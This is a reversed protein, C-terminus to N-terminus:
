LDFGDTNDENEDIDDYDEEEDFFNIADDVTVDNILNDDLINNEEKKKTIISGTPILPISGYKEERTYERFNIEENYNYEPITGTKIFSSIVGEKFKKACFENGFLNFLDCIGEILEPKPVEFEREIGNAKKDKLYQQLYTVIRKARLQRIHAKLPGNVVLDLVQLESTMNPPLYAVDIVNKIVYNRVLETKHSGCNDVWLLIKGKSNRIPLIILDFWMLMRVQDNWAKHQSTIVHGSVTNILYKCKHEKKVNNIEIENEWIGLKWNDEVRFGCKKHLNDLVRMKTQDPKNDSICKDSHKLILFIPAFEGLGNVTLVATIRLKTNVNGINAARAQDRPIYLHTPGIAYTIATEDMNWITSPDHGHLRILDQGIKLIRIVEELPLTKKEDTTIRRRRLEARNLMGKVWHPSFKLAQIKDTTLWNEQKSITNATEVIVAYSYIVNM